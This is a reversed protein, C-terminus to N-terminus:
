RKDKMGAAGSKKLVIEPMHIPLYQAMPMGKPIEIFEQDEPLEKFDLDIPIKAKGTINPLSHILAQGVSVGKPYSFYPVPLIVVTYDLPLGTLIVGAQVIWANIRVDGLIFINLPFLLSPSEPLVKHFGPFKEQASPNIEVMEQTPKFAYVRPGAEEWYTEIEVRRDRFFRCTYPMKLTIGVQERVNLAPCHRHDAILETLDAHMAAWDPTFGIEPEPIEPHALLFKLEFKKFYNFLPKKIVAETLHCLKAFNLPPFCKGPKM